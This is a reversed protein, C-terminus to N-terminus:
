AYLFLLTSPIFVMWMHLPGQRSELSPTVSTPSWSPFVALGVPMSLCFGLGCVGEIKKFIHGRREGHSHQPSRTDRWLQLKGFPDPIIVFRRIGDTLPSYFTLLCKGGGGKEMSKYQVAHDCTM